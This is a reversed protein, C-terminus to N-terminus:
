STESMQQWQQLWGEKEKLFERGILASVIPAEPFDERFARWIAEWRRLLTGALLDRESPTLRRFLMRSLVDPPLRGLYDVFDRVRREWEQPGIEGYACPLGYYREVTEAEWQWTDALARLDARWEECEVIRVPLTEALYWWQEGVRLFVELHRLGPALLYPERWRVELNPYILNWQTEELLWYRDVRVLIAEPDPLDTRLVLMEPGSLVSNLALTGEAKQLNEPDPLPPLDEPFVYPPRLLELAFPDQPRPGRNKRAGRQLWVVFFFLVVLAVVLVVRQPASM